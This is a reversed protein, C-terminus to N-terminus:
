PRRDDPTESYDLMSIGTYFRYNKDTNGAEKLVKYTIEIYDCGESGSFMEPNLRASTYTYGAPLQDTDYQPNSGYEVIEYYRRVSSTGVLM